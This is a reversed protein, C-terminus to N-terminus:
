AVSIEPQITIPFNVSNAIFCYAHADDHLARARILDGGPEITIRPRLTASVFRGTGRQDEVMTAQAEDRYTQVKIGAQACLGLYWLKHCAAISALLLDEPNWRAPDGRFAPDSSGDIRPKVGSEITHDRSYGAHTATDNGQNGTWTVTVRYTHPRAPM